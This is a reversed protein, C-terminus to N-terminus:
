ETFTQFNCEPDQPRARHTVAGRQECTWWGAIALNRRLGSGCRPCTGTEVVKRAEAQLADMHAKHCRPCERSHKSMVRGCKCKIKITVARVMKVQSGPELSDIGNDIAIREAEWRAALPGTAEITREKGDRMFVKYTM